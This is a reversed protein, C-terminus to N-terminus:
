GLINGKNSPPRASVGSDLNPLWMDVPLDLFPGQGDQGDKDPFAVALVAEDLQPPAEKSGRGSVAPGQQGQVRVGAQCM